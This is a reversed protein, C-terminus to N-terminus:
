PLRTAKGLKSRKEIQPSYVYQNAANKDFCIKMEM